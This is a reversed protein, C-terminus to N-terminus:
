LAAASKLHSPLATAADHVMLRSRIAALGRLTVLTWSRTTRPDRKFRRSLARWSLDEIILAEILAIAIEGLAQRFAALRKLADLQSESRELRSGARYGDRGTGDITGAQLSGRHARAHLERYALAALWMARDIDGALVLRDLRSRVRWAPHYRRNSIEPEIVQHHQRFEASPANSTM